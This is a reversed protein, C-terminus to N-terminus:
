AFSSASAASTPEFRESRQNMSQSAFSFPSALASVSQRRMPAMDTLTSMDTSGVSVRSYSAVNKM